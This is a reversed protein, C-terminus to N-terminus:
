ILGEKEEDTLRNKIVLQVCIDSIIGINDVFECISLDDTNLIVSPDTQCRMNEVCILRQDLFDVIKNLEDSGFNESSITDVLIKFNLFEISNLPKFKFIPWYEKPIDNEKFQSPVIELLEDKNFGLLGSLKKKLEDTLVRKENM